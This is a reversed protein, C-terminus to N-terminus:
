IYTQIKIKTKSNMQLVNVIYFDWLNCNPFSASIIAARDLNFSCLRKRNMGPGSSAPVAFSLSACKASLSSM